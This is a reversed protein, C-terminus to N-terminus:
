LLKASQRVHSDYKSEFTTQGKTAVVAVTGLIVPTEASPLIGVDNLAL